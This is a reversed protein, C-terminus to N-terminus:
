IMRDKEGNKERIMKEKMLLSIALHVEEETKETIHHEKVTKVIPHAVEERDAQVEDKM